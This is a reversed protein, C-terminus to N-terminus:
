PSHGPQPLGFSVGCSPGPSETPYAELKDLGASSAGARRAM